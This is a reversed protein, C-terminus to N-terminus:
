VKQQHYIKNDIGFGFYKRCQKPLCCCCADGISIFLKPDIEHPKLPGTLYTVVNGVLIVTCVAIPTYWM